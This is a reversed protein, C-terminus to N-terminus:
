NTWNPRGEMWTKVTERLWGELKPVIYFIPFLLNDESSILGETVATKSLATNPYIRIGITIKMADLDLSDAFALSQEASEKTEGPGGLMLFGMQKIGGTRLMESTCRISDLHFKKNMIKLIQECGSEFGLSIERCDAMALLNVLETDVIGPYFICRWSIGLKRDIIKRCLDKAYSLPMNFVNDVFYFRKYGADVHRVINEIVLEPSRKRITRGEIDATSCYNCNMPCGRRTQIPIGFDDSGPSSISWMKEDPLLLEDLIKAFQREGQLGRGRLYLGPTGWLDIGRQMRYLLAPFAVEGEGQIGMDAELYELASEPFISYGAGGLIIPVNSLTRCHNIIKKVKDLLFIPQDMSQDDINRVSVGIVEPRFSEIADTIAMNSDKEAMLDLLRVDHGANRTAVAVCNLGLPLPLINMHETNASIFLVKMAKGKGAKIEKNM